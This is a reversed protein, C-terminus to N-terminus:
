VIITNVIVTACLRTPFLARIVFTQGGATVSCVYLLPCERDTRLRRGEVM